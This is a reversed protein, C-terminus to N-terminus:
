EGISIAGTPCADAADRVCGYQEAGPEPTIVHSYGDDEVRFVDPCLDECSGCGICLDEDVRPKM